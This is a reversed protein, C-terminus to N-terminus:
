ERTHIHKKAEKVMKQVSGNNNIQISSEKALATLDAFGLIPLHFLTMMKLWLRAYPRIGGGKNVTRLQILSIRRNRPTKIHIPHIAIGPALERLVEVDQPHVVGDVIFTNRGSRQFQRYSKEMAMRVAEKRGHRMIGRIAGLISSTRGHHKAVVKTFGARVGNMETTLANALTTKGSGPLGSIAVIRRRPM